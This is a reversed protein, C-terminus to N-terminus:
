NQASSLIKVHRVFMATTTNSRSFAKCCGKHYPSRCSKCINMRVVEYRQDLQQIYQKTMHPYKAKISAMSVLADQEYCLEKSKNTQIAMGSGNLLAAQKLLSRYTYRRQNYTMPLSLLIPLRNVVDFSMSRKLVLHRLTNLRMSDPMAENRFAFTICRFLEIDNFWTDPLSMM